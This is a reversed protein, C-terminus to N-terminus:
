CGRAGRLGQYGGGTKSQVAQHSTGAVFTGWGVRSVVMGERQLASLAKRVTGLRWTMNRPSHSSQRSGTVPLTSM